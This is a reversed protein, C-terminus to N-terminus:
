TQLKPSLKPFTISAPPSIDPKKSGLGKFPGKFLDKFQQKFSSFPLHWLKVTGDHSASALLCSDPAFAVSHVWGSHSELTQRCQATTLDWNVTRDYSASALLQSDPSFVVASVLARHGTLTRQCQGTMLDWLKIACDATTSALLRADPSFAVSNSESLLDGYNELTQQRQVAGPGLAEYHWRTIGVRAPM